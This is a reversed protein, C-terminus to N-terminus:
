RDFIFTRPNRGFLKLIHKAAKITTRVSLMGATNAQIVQTCEVKMQIRSCDQKLKTQLEQVVDDLKFSENNIKQYEPNIQALILLQQLLETMADVTILVNKLEDQEALEAHKKQFLQVQAKINALPTRLEHAASDSFYRESEISTELRTFLRNLESVVTELEVPAQLRIPKLDKPSRSQIERSLDRLPSFGKVLVWYISWALLPLLLMLPIFLGLLIGQILENRVSYREAVLITLRNPNYNLAFMRWKKGRVMEDSFGEHDPKDHSSVLGSRYIMQDGQWVITQIKKEYKHYTELDRIGLDIMKTQFDHEVVEHHILGLIIKASRVMGADFIEEIEDYTRHFAIMGVVVYLVTIIWFIKKFLARKISLKKM